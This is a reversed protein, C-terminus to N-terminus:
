QKDYGDFFPGMRRAIARAKAGTATSSSTEPDSCHARAELITLGRAITRSGGRRYFRVIRYIPEHDAPCYLDSEQEPSETGSDWRVVISGDPGTGHVVVGYGKDTHRVRSGIDM